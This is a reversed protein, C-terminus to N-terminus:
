FGIKGGGRSTGGSSIKNAMRNIRKISDDISEGLVSIGVVLERLHAISWGESRQIIDDVKTKELDPVKSTVFSRRVADSPMGVEVVRDFRGPRDIFRTDLNEPYNTTAINVVNDIQDEGDLISLFDEECYRDLMADLDEFVCVVIRNREVARIMKLCSAAAEPDGVMLIIGDMKKVVYHAIMKILSSKGSGPPGWLLIGRRNSLGLTEMKEASNCFKKFEKMLQACVPDQLDILDDTSIEEKYLKHMGDRGCWRPSYYGADLTDITPTSSSYLGNSLIWCLDGSLNEKKNSKTDRIGEIGLDVLVPASTEVLRSRAKSNKM